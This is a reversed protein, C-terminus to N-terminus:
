IPRLSLLPAAMRKGVLRGQMDPMAMVVTDIEGASVLDSLQDLTLMGNM